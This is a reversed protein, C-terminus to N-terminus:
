AEEKAGGEVEHFGDVEMQVKRRGGARVPGGTESVEVEEGDERVGRVGVVAVAAAVAAEDEEGDGTGAAGEAPFAEERGFAVVAGARGLEGDDGGCDLVDDGNAGELGLEADADSGEVGGDDM